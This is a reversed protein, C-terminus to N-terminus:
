ILNIFFSVINNLFLPSTLPISILWLIVGIVFGGFMDIPYHFGILVRFLLLPLVIILYFSPNIVQYQLVFLFFFTSKITHGSPFSGTNYWSKVLGPPTKLGKKFM